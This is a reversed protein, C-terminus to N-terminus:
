SLYYQHTDQMFKEENYVVLVDTLQQVETLYDFISSNVYRLDIMIIRDYDRCLFPVLSNAFSDKIVLLTKENTQDSEIDDEEVIQEEDEIDIDSGEEKTDAINNKRGTNIDISSFNGGFFYNYKDATGLATEDYITQYETIDGSSNIKMTAEDAEPIIYKNITDAKKYYHIKNYDTGLFESEITDTDDILDYGDEKNNDNKDGSNNEIDAVSNKWEQYAYYAGLTTWHHDTMYYVYENRHEEMLSRVSLIMSEASKNKLSDIIEDALKDPKDSTPMYEPLVDRYVTTKGPVLMLRVHEEGLGRSVMSLFGTLDSINEKVQADDFDEDSYTEILREGDIYIGDIVRKGLAIEAVTKATVCEDRLLFHDSLATEFKKEFKGNLVNKVSVKPFSQLERKELESYEKGDNMGYILVGMGCGLIIVFVVIIIINLYNKEKM